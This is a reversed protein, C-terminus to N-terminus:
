SLLSRGCRHLCTCVYRPTEFWALCRRVQVAQASIGSLNRRRQSNNLVRSSALLGHHGVQGAVGNFWNCACMHLCGWQLCQWILSHLQSATQVPESLPTSGFSVRIGPAPENQARARTRM